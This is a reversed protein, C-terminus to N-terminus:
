AISIKKISQKNLINITDQDNIVERLRRRKFIIKEM